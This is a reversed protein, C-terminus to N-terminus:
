GGKRLTTAMAIARLSGRAAGELADHCPACLYVRMVLEGAEVRLRAPGTGSSLTGSVETDPPLEVKTEVWYRADAGRTCPGNGCKM